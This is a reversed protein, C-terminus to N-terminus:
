RLGFLELIREAYDIRKSTCVGLVQGAACLARLAEPIGPYLVNEAYGVATYRERYKAVLREIVDPAEAGTIARFSVDLPPGIYTSVDREDIPAYGLETLAFNISRGIGVAPDSLTGDLDFILAPPASMPRPAAHELLRRDDRPDRPLRRPWRAPS